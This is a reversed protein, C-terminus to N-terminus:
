CCWPFRRTEFVLSLHICIPRYMLRVRNEFFPLLDLFSIFIDYMFCISYSVCIYLYSWGLKNLLIIKNTYVDTKLIQTYEPM